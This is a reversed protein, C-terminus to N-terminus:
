LGLQQLASKLNPLDKSGHSRQPEPHKMAGLRGSQPHPTHCRHCVSISLLLLGFFKTHFGVLHLQVEAPYTCPSSFLECFLKLSIELDVYFRAPLLFPTSLSVHSYHFSRLDSLTCATPKIGNDQRKTYTQTSRAMCKVSPCSQIGVPLNCPFFGILKM